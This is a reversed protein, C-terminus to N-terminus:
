AYVVEDAVIPRLRTKLTEELDRRMLTITRPM